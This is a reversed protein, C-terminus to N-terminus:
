STNDCTPEAALNFFRRPARKRRRDRATGFVFTELPGASDPGKKNESPKLRAIVELLPV